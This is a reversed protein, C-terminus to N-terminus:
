QGSTCRVFFVGRLLFQRFELVHKILGFVTEVTSKRTAYVAKGERTQLRHRMAQVATANQPPEPDEGFRETLPLNHKERSSPIFPVLSANTCKEVNAGSFYGTDALLNEVEGLAEPLHGIAALAPEIEQKDNTHQTVHQEVILHTKVDVGAQANYAQEFGGSATPVGTLGSEIAERVLDSVSRNTETAKHRLALLLEEDLTVALNEQNHAM